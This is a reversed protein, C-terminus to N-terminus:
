FYLFYLNGFEIDCNSPQQYCVGMEGNEVEGQNKHLLLIPFAIGHCSSQNHIKFLDLRQALEPKRRASIVFHSFAQYPNCDVVM